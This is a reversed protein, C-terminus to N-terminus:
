YRFCYCISHRSGPVVLLKLCHHLHRYIGHVASCPCNNTEHMLKYEIYVVLVLGLCDATIYILTCETYLVVIWWPPLFWHPLQSYIGPVSARHGGLPPGSDRAKICVWLLPPQAHAPLNQQTIPCSVSVVTIQVRIEPQM